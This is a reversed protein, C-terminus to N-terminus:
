HQNLTGPLRTTGRSAKANKACREICDLIQKKSYPKAIFGDVNNQRAVGQEEEYNNATVVIVMAMPDIEKIARALAHGSGDSLSLDVFIIDHSKKLYISWAARLGDAVDVMISEVGPVRAGRIIECLLKQYFAHDEVVLINMKKSYRKQDRIDHFLRVMEPTVALFSATSGSQEEEEEDLNWGMPDGEDLFRGTAIESKNESKAAFLENHLNTVIEDNRNRPDCYTILSTSAGPQGLVSTVVSRLQRYVGKLDGNWALYISRNGAFLLHVKTAHQMAPRIAMIFAENTLTKLCDRRVCALVWQQGPLAALSDVFEVMSKANGHDIIDM